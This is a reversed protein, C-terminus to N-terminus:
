LFYIEKWLKTNILLATNSNDDNFLNWWRSFYLVILMIATSIFVAIFFDILMQLVTYWKNNLNKM